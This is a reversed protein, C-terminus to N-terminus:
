HDRSLLREKKCAKWTKLKPRLVRLIEMKEQLYVISFDPDHRVISSTNDALDAWKIVAIEPTVCEKLRELELAKRAQRNLSPYAESTYEDTLAAVYSGVISDFEQFIDDLTRETDEVVDHLFAAAIMEDTGGEQRVIRAVSIPHNIYPEGTYKRKQGEHAETAFKLARGKM